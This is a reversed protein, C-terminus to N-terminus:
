TVNKAVGSPLAIKVQLNNSDHSDFGGMVGGVAAVTDFIGLFRVEEM